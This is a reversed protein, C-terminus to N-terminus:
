APFWELFDAHAIPGRNVARLALPLSGVGLAPLFFKCYFRGRSANKVLRSADSEISFPM